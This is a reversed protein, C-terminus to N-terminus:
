PSVLFFFSYHSMKIYPLPFYHFTIILCASGFDFSIYIVISNYFIM